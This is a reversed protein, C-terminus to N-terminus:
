QTAEKRVPVAPLLREFVAFNTPGFAELDVRQGTASDTLTLRGDDWAVLRFPATADLGDLRRSRAFSRLIGRLFGQEGEFVAVQGADERVIVAGDARDEFHLTRQAVAAGAPPASRNGLAPGMAALGITLALAAAVALLPLRSLVPSRAPSTVAQSM